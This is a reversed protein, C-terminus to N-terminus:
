TLKPILPTQGWNSELLPSPNGIQDGCGTLLYAKLLTERTELHGDGGHHVEAAQNPTFSVDVGVFDTDFLGVEYDWVPEKRGVNCCKPHRQYYVLPSTDEKDLLMEGGTFEISLVRTIYYEDTPFSFTASCFGPPPFVKTLIFFVVVPMLGFWLLKNRTSPALSKFKQRLILKMM